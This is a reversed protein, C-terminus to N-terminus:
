VTPTLFFLPMPLMVARRRAGSGAPVVSVMLRVLAITKPLRQEEIQESRMPRGVVLQKFLRFM